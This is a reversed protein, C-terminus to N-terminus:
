CNNFKFPKPGWDQTSCLIWIPCHDSIDRDGVWQANAQWESILSDSLLFRDLRSLASGDANFWTFKKGMVPVDVINMELIFNNFEVCERRVFQASVGRRESCVTIANFDGAVCWTTGGFGRKSMVLHGWSRRKGDISCPSYINVLHCMLGSNKFSACIGIFGNGSFHYQVHLMSSKWVTLLGSSLGNAGRAVWEFDCDRWFTEILQNTIDSCKTEQLFICDFKGNIILSRLRRRKARDGLGRVNLSLIKM